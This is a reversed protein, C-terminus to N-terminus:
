IKIITIHEGWAKIHEDSSPFRAPQDFSLIQSKSALAILSWSRASIQLLQKTSNESHLWVTCQRCITEILKLRSGLTNEVDLTLATNTSQNSYNPTSLSRHFLCSSTYILSESLFEPISKRMHWRFHACHGPKQPSSVTGKVMPEKFKPKLWVVISRAWGKPFPYSSTANSTPLTPSCMSCMCQHCSCPHLCFQLVHGLCCNGTLKLFTCMNYWVYM